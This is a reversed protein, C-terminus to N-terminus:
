ATERDFVSVPNRPEALRPLTPGSLHSVEPLSMTVTFLHSIGSSETRNTTKRATGNLVSSSSSILALSDQKKKFAQRPLKRSVQGEPGGFNSCKGEVDQWKEDM